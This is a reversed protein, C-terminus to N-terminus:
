RLRALAMDFAAQHPVFPALADYAMVAPLVVSGIHEDSLRSPFADVEAVYYDRTIDLDGDRDHWTMVHEVTTASLDIFGEQQVERLAAAFASEGRELQGGLFDLQSPRSNADFPREVLYTERRSDVLM